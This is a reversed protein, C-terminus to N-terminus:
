RKHCKTEGVAIPNPNPHLCEEHADKFAAIAKRGIRDLTLSAGCWCHLMPTFGLKQTTYFHQMAQQMAKNELAHFPRLKNHPVRM